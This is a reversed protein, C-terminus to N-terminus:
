VIIRLEPNDAFKTKITNLLTQMNTNCNTNISTLLKEEGTLKPPPPPIGINGKRPPLPIYISEPHLINLIDVDNICGDVVVLDILRGTPPTPNFNEVQKIITPTPSPIEGDFNRVPKQNKVGIEAGSHAPVSQIRVPIDKGTNDKIYARIENPIQSFYKDANILGQGWMISDGVVLIDFFKSGDREDILKCENTVDLFEDEGCKPKEEDDPCFVGGGPLKECVGSEPIEGLQQTDNALGTQNTPTSEEQASAQQVSYYSDDDVGLNVSTTSSPATIVIMPFFSSTFLNSILFLGAAAMLLFRKQNLMMMQQCKKLKLTM